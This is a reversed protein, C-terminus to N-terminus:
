INILNKMASMARLLMCKSGTASLHRCPMMSCTMRQYTGAISSELVGTWCTVVRTAWARVQQYNWLHCCTQPCQPAEAQDFLISSFLSDLSSGFAASHDGFLEWDPDGSEAFDILVYSNSEQCSIESLFKNGLISLSKWMMKSCWEVAVSGQKPLTVQILRKM